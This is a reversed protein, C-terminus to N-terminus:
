LVTGLTALGAPGLLVVARQLAEDITTGTGELSGADKLTQAAAALREGVEYRDPREVAAEDGAADLSRNVTELATPSLAVGAVADRARVITRRLELTEWTASTYPIAAAAGTEIGYTVDDM